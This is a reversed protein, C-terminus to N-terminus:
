PRDSRTCRRRMTSRRSSRVLVKWGDAVGFTKAPIGELYEAADGELAAHLRLGIEDDGIIHKAIEIFSDVKQLWHKFCKPDKKTNGDFSPPQPLNGRPRHRGGDGPTASSTSKKSAKSGRDSGADPSQSSAKLAEPSQSSAKLAPSRRGSMPSTPSPVPSSPTFQRPGNKGSRSARGSGGAQGSQPRTEEPMNLVEEYLYDFPSPQEPM